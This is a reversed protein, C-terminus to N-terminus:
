FTICLCLPYAFIIWLIYLNVVIGVLIGDPDKTSISLSMKFNVYSYLTTLITLFIKSFSFTNFIIYQKIELYILLCFLINNAYIYVLSQYMLNLFLDTYIPCSGKSLPAFATHHLFGLRQLLYHQSLSTVLWFFLSLFFCKFKHDYRVHYAM